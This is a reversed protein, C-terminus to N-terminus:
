LIWLQSTFYKERLLISQRIQSDPSKSIKLQDSSSHSHKKACNSMQMCSFSYSFIKIHTIFVDFPSTRRFFLIIGKHVSIFLFPSTTFGSSASM